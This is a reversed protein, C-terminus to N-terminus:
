LKNLNGRQPSFSCVFTQLAQALYDAELDWAAHDKDLEQGKVGWRKEVAPGAAM